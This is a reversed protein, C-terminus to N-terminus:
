SLLYGLSRLYDLKETPTLNQAQRGDPLFDQKRINDIQWLPRLNSYHFCIKQENPNMMNFLECCLIHDINWKDRGFGYNEWTMGSLFKSEIYQKLFEISCGLLEITFLTKSEGKLARRIRVSLNNRLRKQPNRKILDYQRKSECSKCCKHGQRYSHKPKEKDCILCIKIPKDKLVKLKLRWAKDGVTRITRQLKEACYKQGKESYNEILFDIEERLWSRIRKPLQNEKAIRRVTRWCTHLKECIEVTSINLNYLDIIQKKKDESIQMFSDKRSCKLHNTSSGEM